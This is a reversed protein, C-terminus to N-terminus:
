RYVDGRAGAHYVHVVNEGDIVEYLLRYDGQRWRYNCHWRGKLHNIRGGQRPSESIRSSIEDWIAALEHHRRLFRRVSRHLEVDYRRRSSVM